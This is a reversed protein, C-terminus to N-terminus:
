LEFLRRFWNVFSSQCAEADPNLVKKAIAAGMREGPPNRWALWTHIHAKEKHVELWDAGHEKAEIYSKSAYQWLGESAEPVM